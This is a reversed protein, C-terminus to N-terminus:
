FLQPTILASVPAFTRRHHPTPGLSRLAAIHEPTGYGFNREWGYGPYRVALRQMLRDRTVKAIISACAIAYSKADGDVIATHPLTQWGKIERGDVLVHDYPAVRALARRMALRSAQLVNLREIEAVSAAGIGVSVAQSLIESYLRERQRPSLKKSDRVEAIPECDTPVLYAAAVVPGVLPGIGVEDVGVVRLKGCKWLERELDLSPSVVM